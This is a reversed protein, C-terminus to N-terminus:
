GKEGTTGATKKLERIFSRFEGGQAITLGKEREVGQSVNGRVSVRSAPTVGGKSKSHRCTGARPRKKWGGEAMKERWPM